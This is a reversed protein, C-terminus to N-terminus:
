YQALIKEFKQNFEYNPFFTTSWVDKQDIPMDLKNGTKIDWIIVNLQRRGSIIRKQDPSFSVSYNEYYNNIYSMSNPLDVAPINDNGYEFSHLIKAPELLNIIKIEEDDSYVIQNGDASFAISSIMCGPDFEDYNTIIKGNSSNRVTFNDYCDYSVVMINDPSFVLIRITRDNDKTWIKKGTEMNWMTISHLSCTAMLKSDYSLSIKHIDTNISKVLYGTEANLINIEDNIGAITSQSSYIIKTNDNTYLIQKIKFRSNFTNIIQGTIACWVVLKYKKDLVIGSVISKGDSSFCAATIKGEIPTLTRILKGTVDEWIKIHDEGFTIIRLQNLRIIEDMLTKDMISYFNNPIKDVVFKYITEDYKDLRFINLLLEFGEYDIVLDDLYQKNINLGFYDHCKIVALSYLPDIFKTPDLHKNFFSMIIDHTANTCKDPVTITIKDASQEKFNILLKEFYKSSSKLTNKSLNDIVVEENNDTLVLTITDM